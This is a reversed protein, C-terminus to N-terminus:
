PLSECAQGDGDGDLRRATSKHTDYYSQAETHSSFTSCTTHGTSSGSTPGHSSPVRRRRQTQSRPGYGSCVAGRATHCTGNAESSGVGPPSGGFQPGSSHTAGGGLRVTWVPHLENWGHQSDFVWAGTLTIQSGTRPEPLHGGDRPMFEVTLAGEESRGGAILRRSAPDLDVLVHLDGDEEHRVVRVTGTARRCGALVHLRAPHYVGGLVPRGPACVTRRHPKPRRRRQPDKGRSPAAGRPACSRAASFAPTRGYGSTAGARRVWDTGSGPGGRPGACDEGRHSCRGLKGSPM